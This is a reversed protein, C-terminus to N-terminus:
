QTEKRENNMEHTCPMPIGHKAYEDLTLPRPFGLLGWNASCDECEWESDPGDNRRVHLRRGSDDKCAAIVPAGPWKPEEMAPTLAAVLTRAARAQGDTMDPLAAELAARLDDTM